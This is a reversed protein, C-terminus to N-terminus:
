QYLTGLAKKLDVQAILIDYLANMYNTQSEKLATEATLVELNSGVGETYKIQTVRVIEQALELNRKQSEMTELANNYMIRANTTELEISMRLLDFGNGVKELNIRAMEIRADKQLGDFIPIRLQAGILA